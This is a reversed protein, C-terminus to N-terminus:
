RWLLREGRLCEGNVLATGPGCEIDPVCEGNVLRTVAGCLVQAGADAVTCIGNVLATGPGCSM